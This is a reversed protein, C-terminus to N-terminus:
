KGPMRAPARRPWECTTSPMILSPARPATPPPPAHWRGVELCTAPPAPAKCARARRNVRWWSCPQPVGLVVHVHAATRLQACGGVADPALLLILMRHRRELPRRCGMRTPEGSALDHRHLQGGAAPLPCTLPLASCARPGTHTHTPPPPHAPHASAQCGEVCWWARPYCAGGGGGGCQTFACAARDWHARHGPGGM